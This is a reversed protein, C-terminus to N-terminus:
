KKNYVRILKGNDDYAYIPDRIPEVPEYKLQATFGNNEIDDETQTTEYVVRQLTNDKGLIYYQGSSGANAVAIVPEDNGKEETSTVEPSVDEPQKDDVTQPNFQSPPAYPFTPQPQETTPSGYATDPLPLQQKQSFLSPQEASFSQQREFKQQQQQQQRVTALIRANQNRSPPM